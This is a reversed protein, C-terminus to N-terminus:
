GTINISSTSVSVAGSFDTTFTSITVDSVYVGSVVAISGGNGSNLIAWSQVVNTGDDVYFVADLVLNSDLEDVVAEFDDYNTGTYIHM